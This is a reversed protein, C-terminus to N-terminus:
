AAASNPAASAQARPRPRANIRPGSLEDSFSVAPSRMSPKSSSGNTIIGYLGRSYAPKMSRFPYWFALSRNAQSISRGPSGPTPLPGGLPNTGPLVDRNARHIERGEVCFDLPEDIDVATRPTAVPAEDVRCGGFDTLKCGFQAVEDIGIEHNRRLHLALHHA